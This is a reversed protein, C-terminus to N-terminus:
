GMASGGEVDGSGELGLSRLTEEVEGKQGELVDYLRYVMECKREVQGVLEEMRGKVEERKRRGMGPEHRAYEGQKEGLKVKLHVIEDELGKIVRALAEKPDEAPRVTLATVDVDRESVPVPLPIQVEKGENAPCATCNKGDHKVGNTSAPVERITIDPLIFASTMEEFSRSRVPRRSGTSIVSADVDGATEPASYSIHDATEPSQVRVNRTDRELASTLDRLSSKRKEGETTPASTSRHGKAALRESELKKRLASLEAPDLFSLYTIDKDDEAGTTAPLPAPDLQRAFDNTASADSASDSLGEFWRERLATKNKTPSQIAAPFSHRKREARSRSRSKEKAEQERREERSQREGMQGKRVAEARAKRVEAEVRAMIKAQSEQASAKGTEPGGITGSRPDEKRVNSSRSKYRAKLETERIAWQRLDADHAAESEVLQTQLEVNAERLALIEQHLAAKQDELLENDSRLQMSEEKLEENSYFAVGLQTILSDREQTMRKTAVESVSSKREARELRHSLSKLESKLESKQGRWDAEEFRDEGGGSNGRRLRREMTVQARLGEMESELREAKKMAGDREGELAAVKERLVQLSAFIVKEEEPLPLGSVPVHGETAQIHSASTFRSKSKGAGTRSFVPTGDKRVGSVLEAINPLDPLAFSALTGNGADAASASRRTTQGAGLGGTTSFRTPIDSTVRARSFRSKQQALAHDPSPIVLSSDAIANVRAHMDSLTRRANTAPRTKQPVIDSTKTVSNDYEAALRLSARKRMDTPKRSKIPPTATLNYLSDDPISLVPEESLDGYAQRGSTTRTSRKYGRGIEVSPASSSITENDGGQASSDPHWSQEDAATDFHQTSERDPQFSTITSNGGDFQGPLQPSSPTNRSARHQNRTLQAIVGSTQSAPAM